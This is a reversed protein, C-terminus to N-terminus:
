NKRGEAASSDEVASSTREVVGRLIELLVLIGIGTLFGKVDFNGPVLPNRPVSLTTPAEIVAYLSGSVLGLILYTVSSRHRIIASRIFRISLVAGSVIGAAFVLLGPVVTGDLHVLDRFGTIVPVYAGIVLLFTSGSIGPLLMASVALIGAGFLYPLFVPSLSHLDLSAGFRTFHAASMFYVIVIGLIFFVGNKYNGALVNKERIVIFPLSAATLGLFLSSLFYIDAAFSRAILNVSLMMGATWGAGLKILFLLAHKRAAIDGRLLDHLSEIFQEYFGLIYAVTSGSIGPVSDAFAMCAGDFVTSFFLKSQKKMM